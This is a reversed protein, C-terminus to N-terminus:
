FIFYFLTAALSSSFATKVIGNSQGGKKKLKKEYRFLFM